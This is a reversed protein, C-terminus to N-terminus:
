ERIKKKRIEIYAHQLSTYPDIANEIIKNYADKTTFSYNNVKKTISIAKFGDEPDVDYIGFWTFPSLFHDGAKGIIGRGTSPGLIPLVIYPGNDMGYHGLTQEFDEDQKKLKFVRDAPDFLGGIGITSNIMLRGFEVSASKFKGQFINNFFRKPGSAFVVFNNISGQFKKPMIFDYGKALPNFVFKYIKDNFSFMFRNYGELPDSVVPTEDYFGDDLTFEDQSSRTSACGAVLTMVLLISLFSFITRSYKKM